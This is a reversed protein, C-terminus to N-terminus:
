IYKIGLGYSWTSNSECLLKRWLIVAHRANPVAGVKLKDFFLSFTSGPMPAFNAELYIEGNDSEHLSAPYRYGHRDDEIMVSICPNIYMNRKENENPEM